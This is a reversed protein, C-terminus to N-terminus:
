GGITITLLFLYWSSKSEEGRPEEVREDWDEDAVPSVVSAFRAGQGDRQPELLPSFENNEKLGDMSRLSMSASSDRSNRPSASGEPYQLEFEDRTHLPTEADSDSINGTANGRAM